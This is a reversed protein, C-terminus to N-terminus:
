PELLPVGNRNRRVSHRHKTREPTSRPAAPEVSQVASAPVPAAPSPAIPPQIAPQAASAAAPAAPVVAPPAVPQLVRETAAQPALKAPATPNPAAEQSSRGLGLGLVGAAILAIFVTAGILIVKWPLTRRNPQEEDSSGPVQRATSVVPPSPSSRASSPRPAALRPVDPRPSLPIAREVMPKLIKTCPQKSFPDEPEPEVDPARMSIAVGGSGIPGATEGFYFDRWLAKRKSSAFPMLGCGLAHVSPFREEPNLAMARNIVKTFGTPLGPVLASAPAYEATAISRLVAYLTPGDHCRRGTVCEYLIAGLAYQDSRASITDGGEAQEPSLYHPTGLMASVATLPHAPDTRRLKSIGFDLVKPVTDGTASRCLFINQPKLDRHLIGLRHAEHVGSCVALMIDATHEVSLPHQEILAALDTGEMLEMVLYALGRDHGSDVVSVVHPHNLRSVVEAERMFRAEAEPQAAIEAGLVKLAFRKSAMRTHVAQFVTGMGGKGIEREIRYHAVVDGPALTRPTLPSGGPSTPSTPGSNPPQDPSAM